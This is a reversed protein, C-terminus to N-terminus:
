CRNASELWSYLVLVLRKARSIVIFTTYIHVAHRLGLHQLCEPQSGTEHTPVLEFDLRGHSKYPITPMLQCRVLEFGYGIVIRIPFM